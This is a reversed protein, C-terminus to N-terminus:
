HAHGAHSHQRADEAEVAVTLTIDGASTLLTISATDGEVFSASLGTALIALGEPALDLHRGPQVPVSPLAAYSGEGGDLTFGVLSAEEAFPVIAGELLLPDAGANELELFILAERGDTANMWPHVVTVGAAEFAHEADEAGHDEEHGHGDESVAPGAFALAAILALLSTTLAPKTM